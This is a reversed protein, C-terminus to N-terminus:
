ILTKSKNQSQIKMHFKTRCWLMRWMKGLCSSFCFWQPVAIKLFTTSCFFMCTCAVLGCPVVMARQLCQMGVISTHYAQLTHLTNCSCLERCMNCVLLVTIIPRCHTCHWMQMARQVYQVGIVGNHYAQLTHLTSYSCLVRSVCCGNCAFLIMPSCHM